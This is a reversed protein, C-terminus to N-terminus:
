VNIISHLFRFTKSKIQPGFKYLFHTNELLKQEIVFKSGAYVQTGRVCSDGVHFTRTLLVLVICGSFCYQTGHVLSFLAPTSLVVSAFIFYTLSWDNPMCNSTPQMSRLWRMPWLEDSDAPVWLGRGTVTFNVEYSGHLVIKVALRLSFPVLTTIVSFKVLRCTSMNRFARAEEFTFWGPTTLVMVDLLCNVALVLCDSSQMIWGPTTMDVYCWINLQYGTGEWVAVQSCPEAQHPWTWMVDFICNVAFYRRLCDSSQMIWGPTTMDM